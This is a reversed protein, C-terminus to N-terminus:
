LLITTLVKAFNLYLGLVYDGNNRPQSLKDILYTMALSM